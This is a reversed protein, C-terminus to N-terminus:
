RWATIWEGGPMAPLDADAEISLTQWATRPSNPECAFLPPMSDGSRRTKIAVPLGLALWVASPAGLRGM